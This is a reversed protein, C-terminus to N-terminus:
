SAAQETEAAAAAAKKGRKGPKGAGSAAAKAARFEAWRKRTAEAIRERGEASMM